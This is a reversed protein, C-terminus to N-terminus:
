YLYGYELDEFKIIEKLCKLKYQQKAKVKQRNEKIDIIKKEEKLIREALNEIKRQQQINKCQLYEDKSNINALQLYDAYSIEICNLIADKHNHKVRPFNRVKKAAEKGNLAIVAFQVPIYNNRGVHGCKAVVKYYRKELM